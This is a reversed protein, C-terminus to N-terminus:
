RITLALQERERQSAARKIAGPSTGIVRKFARAFAAESRYGLEDALQAVTVPESQLRSLAAHMRWRAVYHMPPEGSLEAFRAAYASRSMAAEAALRAVTWPRAPERHILAITRGIQPDRLAGLWGTRAAPATELWARIAEIVLVDALRTIVAEGGPQLERAEAALLALTAEMRGFRATADDGVVLIPPLLDVLSRGAPHELRVAGCLLTSPEGGGGHRLIEYRDTLLERDLEFVDPAAADPDSRLVQGGGGPVLALQGPGLEATEGAAELHFSGRTALHFWMYSPMEPLTMGWPATLEGRSYFGGSMRLAHLAEALPDTPGWPDLATM